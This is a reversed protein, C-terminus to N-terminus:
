AVGSEPSRSPSSSGSPRSENPGFFEVGLENDSRWRVRCRPILPAGPIKLKFYDPVLEGDEVRIRAGTSSIDYLLCEVVKDNTLSIVAAQSLRPIRKSNRRERGM